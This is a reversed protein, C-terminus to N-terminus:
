ALAVATAGVARLKRARKSNLAIKGVEEVGKSTGKGMLKLAFKKGASKDQYTLRKANQELNLRTNFDQLDKNSVAKYGSKKAVQAVTRARVADPHASIGKGGSTKLKKGKEKITVNRASKARAASRERSGTTSIGFGRSLVADGARERRRRVGWKQGKVGHHALIREVVEPTSM